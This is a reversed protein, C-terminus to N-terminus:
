LIATLFGRGGLSARHRTVVPEPAVGVWTLQEVQERAPEGVVLRGHPAGCGALECGRDALGQRLAPRPAHHHRRAEVQGRQGGPDFGDGVGLEGGASSSVKSPVIVAAATAMASVPVM